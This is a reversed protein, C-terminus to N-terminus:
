RIVIRKIFKNNQKELIEKLLNEDKDAYKLPITLGKLTLGGKINSSFIIKKNMIDIYYDHINFWAYFRGNAYIGDKTIGSPAKQILTTYLILEFFIISILAKFVIPKIYFFTFIILILFIFNLLFNGITSAKLLLLNETNFFRKKNFFLKLTFILFLLSVIITLFSLVFFIYKDPYSNPIINDLFLLNKVVLNLLKINKM